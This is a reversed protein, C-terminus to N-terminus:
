AAGVKNKSHCIQENHALTVPKKSQRVKSGAKGEEGRNGANM